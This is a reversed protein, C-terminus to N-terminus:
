RERALFDSQLALALALERIVPVTELAVTGFLIGSATGRGIVVSRGDPDILIRGAEM